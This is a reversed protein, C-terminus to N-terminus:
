GLMMGGFSALNNGIQMSGPINATMDEDGMLILFGGIITDVMDKRISIRTDFKVKDGDLLLGNFQRVLEPDDVIKAIGLSMAKRFLRYHRAQQVHYKITRIGLKNLEAAYLLSQWQDFGIKSGPLAKGLVVLKKKVDEMDIPINAPHDEDKLIPTWAFIADLVYGLGPQVHQIAVATAAYKEGLDVTILYENGLSTNRTNLGDFEGIIKDEGDLNQQVYNTFKVISPHRHIAQLVVDPPMAPEGGKPVWCLIALKFFNRDALSEGQLELPVQVGEFDFYKGSPYFYSPRFQWPFCTDRFITPDKEAAEYLQWTFDLTQDYRPYSYIMGKWNTQFRTSSSSRLTNYVKWGNQRSGGKNHFASAESMIWALVNYGEYNENASHESIIRINNWTKIRDSLILIEPRGPKTTIKDGEILTFNSKLWMWNRILQKVKDFSVDRAQEATFSVILMDIADTPPFGFYEIPDKMCLLVYLLYCIIVAGIFDKGSGKGALLCFINFPSGGKFTKEGETGLFALADYMQRSTLTVKPFHEILFQDFSLPPGEKWISSGSSDLLTAAKESLFDFAIKNQVEVPSTQDKVDEM